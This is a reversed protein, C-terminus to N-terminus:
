TAVSKQRMLLRSGATVSYTSGAPAASLRRAIALVMPDGIFGVRKMRKPMNGGGQGFLIEGSDLRGELTEHPEFLRRM